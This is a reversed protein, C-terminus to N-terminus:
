IEVEATLTITCSALVVLTSADRIELTGVYTKIGVGSKSVGWGRTSSLLLWSGVTGTSVTGSVNSMRCEYDGASGSRLWTFLTTPTANVVRQGIGGSTLEFGAAASAPDIATDGAGANQLFVRPGPDGGLFPILMM